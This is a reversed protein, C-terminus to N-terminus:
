PQFYPRFRAAYEEPAEFLEDQDLLAPLAWFDSLFPKRLGFRACIRVQLWFYHSVDEGLPGALVAMNFASVGLDHYARLVRSLGDALDRIEGPGLGTLDSRGELLGWVEYRRRPAFPALWWTRGLRGILREDKEAELAVLESWFCKSCRRYYDLSRALLERLENFPEGAALVQMHPHPQSAGATPGYNMIVTGYRLEEPRAERASRLVEVAATLGDALLRGDLQDLRRYHERGLIIIANLESHAFLAPVAWCDGVRLRGEPLVEPPFKPTREEVAGPCFPCNAGSSEALERILEEDSGFYKLVYHARGRVLATVRGTLPDRRYEIVQTERRFGELPNLLEARGEWAELKISM